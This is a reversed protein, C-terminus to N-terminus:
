ADGRGPAILALAEARLQPDTFAGRAGVTVATTGPTRSGRAWVCAHSASLVVLVGRAGLGDEVANALEETLREQLQLRSALADVTRAIRGLGAVTGAPLYAVSASGVFPLLHHECVSRFPIDRLAVTETPPADLVVAGEAILAAADVDTGSLMEAFAEAVRSPTQALDPRDAGLAALLEEVAARARPEDVSGV